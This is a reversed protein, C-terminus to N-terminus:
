EIFPCIYMSNTSPFCFIAASSGGTKCFIRGLDDGLVIYKPLYINSNFIKQPTLQKSCGEEDLEIKKPLKVAHM